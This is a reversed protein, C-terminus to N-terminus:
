FYLTALYKWTFKCFPFKWVLSGWGGSHKSSFRIVSIGFHPIEWNFRNMLLACCFKLPFWTFWWFFGYSLVMRLLYLLVCFLIMLSTSLDLFLHLSTFKGAYVLSHINDKSFRKFVNSKIEAFNNSVLLALLANNHAVICTSLTIAQALLIFSHVLLFHWPALLSLLNQM